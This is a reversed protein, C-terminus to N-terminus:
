RRAVGPVVSICEIPSRLGQSVKDGEDDSSTGKDEVVEQLARIRRLVSFINLSPECDQRM